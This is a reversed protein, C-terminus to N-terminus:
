AATFQALSLGVMDNAWGVQPQHEPSAHGNLNGSVLGAPDPQVVPLLVGLAELAHDFQEQVEATPEPYAAQFAREAVNAAEGALTGAPISVSWSM